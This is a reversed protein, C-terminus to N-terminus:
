LVLRITKLLLETYTFLIQIIDNSITKKKLKRTLQKLRLSRLGHESTNRPFQSHNKTKDRRKKIETVITIIPKKKTNM